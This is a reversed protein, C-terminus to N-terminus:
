RASSRAPGSRDLREGRPKRAENRHALDHEAEVELAAGVHQHLDVVGRHDLRLDLGQAVVHALLHAVALDGQRAADRGLRAADEDADGIRGLAVLGVPEQLDSLWGIPPGSPPPLPRVSSTVLVSAPTWSVSVSAAIASLTRWATVCDISTRFRRTLAIPVLSVIIWCCPTLRTSISTGPSCSVVLSLSIM